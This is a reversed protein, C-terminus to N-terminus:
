EDNSTWEWVIKSLDGILRDAAKDDEVGSTLVVLVYRSGDPRYVIGADHTVYQSIWGTKHAIPTGQPLGVPINNNFEQQLLVEIMERCSAQSAARDEAIATFIVGLDGATTTNSLGARYAKSDEVGRLVEISDAGLERMTATVRDAGVLETLINTALNSSVTIMREMLTRISERQGVRGYLLTDSDDPAGLDYPSGDVISRFTKTITISDDLSLTGAEQDRYLQIMVPVKMTSAAHVRTDAHLSLSDGGNLDGYYFGVTEAGGEAIRAELQKELEMLDAEGCGVAALSVVLAVVIPGEM